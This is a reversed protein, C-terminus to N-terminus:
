KLKEIVLERIENKMEPNDELLQIVANRGQGIKNEKYSYWSGAKQIIKWEEALDVIEGTKGFGQGWVMDIEVEAFPKGVKNKLVKIKTRSLEDGKDNKIRRMDLRVSAYFKLANGGCGVEPNGMGGVNARIQNTFIVLCNNHEAVPSLVRLGQSMLRGQGAMKTDGIEGNIETLPVLAAVSDIVVVDVKGSKILQHAIELAQEGHSPQSLILQEMDVDLAIMYNADLAHEMDIYACKKGDRQANAIIHLCCSTKGASEPSILEVIRGYPLGGIGVAWDLGISGTSVCPINLSKKDGSIVTGKGYAENLRNLTDQLVDVVKKEEGEVEKKKGAM